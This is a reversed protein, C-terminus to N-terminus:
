SGEGGGNLSFARVAPTAMPTLMPSVWAEPAEDELEAAPTVPGVAVAVAEAAAGVVVALVDMWVFVTADAVLTVTLEVTLGPLPM